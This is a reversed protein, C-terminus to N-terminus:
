DYALGRYHFARAIALSWGCILGRPKHKQVVLPALARIRTTTSRAAPSCKELPPSIAPKRSAEGSCTERRAQFMAAGARQRLGTMAALRPYQKPTPKSNASAQSKRM